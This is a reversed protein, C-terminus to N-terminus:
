KAANKGGLLAVLLVATGGAILLVSAIEGLKSKLLQWGVVVVGLSALVPSLLPLFALEKKFPLAVVTGVQQVSGTLTAGNLKLERELKILMLESMPSSLYLRVEGAEGEGFLSEARTLDQVQEGQAVVDM